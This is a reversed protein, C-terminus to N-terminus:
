GFRGLLSTASNLLKLLPGLREEIELGDLFNKVYLGLETDGGLKLRRNFFLTDTDERRTALLLFDYLNGEISLDEPESRNFAMLRGGTLTLRYSLRTDLVKIQMSRGALFDLEGETLEPAFLRNLVKALIASNLGTPILALPSALPAPFKPHRVQSDTAQKM